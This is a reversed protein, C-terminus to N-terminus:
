GTIERLPSKGKLKMSKMRGLRKREAKEKKVALKLLRRREARRKEPAKVGIGLNMAREVLSKSKM